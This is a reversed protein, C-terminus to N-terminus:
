PRWKQVANIVKLGYINRMSRVHHYYEKRTLYLDSALDKVRVYLPAILDLHLEVKM